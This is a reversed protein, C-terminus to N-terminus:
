WFSALPQKFHGLGSDAQLLIVNEQCGFPNYCFFIFLLSKYLKIKYKQM